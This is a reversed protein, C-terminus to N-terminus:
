TSRCGGALRDLGIELAANTVVEITALGPETITPRTSRPSPRYLLEYAVVAMAATTSRSVLLLSKTPNIATDAPEPDQQLNNQKGM